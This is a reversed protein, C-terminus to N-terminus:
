SCKTASSLQGLKERYSVQPKGVNAEVGQIAPRDLPSPLYQIIADLLPQIGKNKFAAGCFVPTVQSKLTAERLAEELKQPSIM